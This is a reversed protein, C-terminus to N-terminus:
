FLRSVTKFSNPGYLDNGSGAFDHKGNKKINGRGWSIWVEDNSDYVSFMVFEKSSDNEYYYENEEDDEKKIPEGYGNKKAIPKLRTLMTNEIRRISEIKKGESLYKKMTNYIM